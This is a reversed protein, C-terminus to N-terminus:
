GQDHLAAPLTLIVRTGNEVPEILLKGFNKRAALSSIPLGFGSGAPKTTFFPSFFKEVNEKKPPTGSNFIEICVFHESPCESSSSIRVRPKEGGAFEFANELTYYLMQKLDRLDASVMSSDPDLDVEVSVGPFKEGPKLMEMARDIAETLKIDQFETDRQFVDNYVNIDKVMHECMTSEALLSEYIDYAPEGPSVKRQLMRIYGGIITIKNRVRDAIGKVLEIDCRTTTSIYASTEVLLCYDILKDIAAAVAYRKDAPVDSEIVSQCFRRVVSFGLNSFRQDLGVEVHRIGIRWLFTIFDDSLESSFLKEFWLAWFKGLRSPDDMREMIIRTETIDAFVEHLHGAFERSKSAFVERYPEIEGLEDSHLALKERFLDLKSYPINKDL